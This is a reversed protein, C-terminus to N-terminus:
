VRGSPTAVSAGGGLQRSGHWMVYLRGGPGPTKRTASGGPITGLGGNSERILIHITRDIRRWEGSPRLSGGGYLHTSTM